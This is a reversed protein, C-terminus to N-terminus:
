VSAGSTLRIQVRSTKAQREGLDLRDKQDFPEVIKGRKREMNTM